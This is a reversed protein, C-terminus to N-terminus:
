CNYAKDGCTFARVANNSSFDGSVIEMSPSTAELTAM